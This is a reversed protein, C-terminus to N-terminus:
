IFVSINLLYFYTVSCAKSPRQVQQTDCIYNFLSIYVGLLTRAVLLLPRRGLLPRACATGLPWCAASWRICRGGPDCRWRPPVSGSCTRWPSPRKVVCVASAPCRRAPSADFRVVASVFASPRCHLHNKNAHELPHPHNKQLPPLTHCMYLFNMSGHPLWGFGDPVGSTM